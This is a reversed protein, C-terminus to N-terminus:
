LDRIFASIESEKWVRRRKGIKHGAPFEGLRMWEFITSRAVPIRRMIAPLDLLREPESAPQPLPAIESPSNM